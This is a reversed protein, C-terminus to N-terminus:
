DIRESPSSMVATTMWSTEQRDFSYYLSGPHATHFSGTPTARSAPQLEKPLDGEDRTMTIAVLVSKLDWYPIPLTNKQQQQPKKKFIKTVNENVTRSTCVWDETTLM